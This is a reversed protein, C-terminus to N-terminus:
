WRGPGLTQHGGRIGSKLGPKGTHCLNCNEVGWATKSDHCMGCFKGQTIDKMKMDNAGARMEFGLEHHCVKCRFRIRHFWHPFIVPRVNALESYRNLVVDGYEGFSSTSALGAIAVALAFVVRRIVKNAGDESGALDAWTRRVRCATAVPANHSRFRSPEM